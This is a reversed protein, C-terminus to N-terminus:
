VEAEAKVAEILAYQTAEKNNLAKLVSKDITDKCIIHHIIV